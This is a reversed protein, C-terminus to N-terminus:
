FKRLFLCYKMNQKLFIKDRNITFNLFNNNIVANLQLDITKNM